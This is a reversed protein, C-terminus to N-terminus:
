KLSMPRMGLFGNSDGHNLLSTPFMGNALQFILTMLSDDAKEQQDFADIVLYNCIDMAQPLTRASSYTLSYEDTNGIGKLFKADECREIYNNGDLDM